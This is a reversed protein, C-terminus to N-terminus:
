RQFYALNILSKFFISAWPTLCSSVHTFLFPRTSFLCRLLIMPLRRGVLCNNLLKDRDLRCYEGRSRQTNLNVDEKKDLNQYMIVFSYSTALWKAFSQIEQPVIATGHSIIRHLNINQIRGKWILHKMLFYVTWQKFGDLSLFQLTCLPAFIIHRWFLNYLSLSFSLQFVEVKQICKNQMIAGATIYYLLAVPISCYHFTSTAQVYSRCRKILMYFVPYKSQFSLSAHMKITKLNGLKDNTNLIKM